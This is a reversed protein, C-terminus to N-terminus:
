WVHSKEFDLERLAVIKDDARRARGAPPSRRDGRLGSAHAVLRVRAKM